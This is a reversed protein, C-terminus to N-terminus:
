ARDEGPDPCAFDNRAPGTDRPCSKLRRGTNLVSPGVAAMEPLPV